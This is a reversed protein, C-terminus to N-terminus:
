PKLARLVADPEKKIVQLLVRAAGEPKRRNQEWDRITAAPLGFRAAFQAQSLKLASRIKSVDVEAPVYVRYTSPSAKGRAIARGERAASILRGGLKSMIKREDKLYDILGM